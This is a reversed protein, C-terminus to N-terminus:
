FNKLKNNFNELVEFDAIELLRDRETKYYESKINKYEMLKDFEADKRMCNTKYKEYLESTDKLFSKIEKAGTCLDNFNDRNSLLQKYGNNRDTHNALEKELNSLEQKLELIQKQKAVVLDVMDKIDVAISKDTIKRELRFNPPFKLINRLVFNNFIFINKRFSEVIFSQVKGHLRNNSLIENLAADLDSQLETTFSVPLFGFYEIEDENHFEM